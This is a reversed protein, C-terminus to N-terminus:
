HTCGIIGTTKCNTQKKKFKPLEIYLFNLKNSFLEGTQKNVLGVNTM